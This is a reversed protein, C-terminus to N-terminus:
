KVVCMRKVEHKRKLQHAVVCVCEREREMEIIVPELRQIVDMYSEGAPYRSGCLHPCPMDPAAKKHLTQAIHNAMWVAAGVGDTPAPQRHPAQAPEVLTYFWPISGQIFGLYSVLTHVGLGALALCRFGQMQLWAGLAKVFMGALSRSGRMRTGSCTLPAQTSATWIHAM